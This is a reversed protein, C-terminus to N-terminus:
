GALREVAGLPISLWSPRHQAEYVVEYIMKDTEYATLLAPQERPDFSAAEAYGDCFAERNREMWETSRYAIQEYASDDRRYDAVLLHRAAYDFSRLMGAIDRLPSDLATREALPRVPEGEFDVIKWGVVTRLAQGLHLDGHIRQVPVPPSVTRLADIHERLVTDYQRLEPVVAVADDLRRVMLQALEALDDADLQSTPLVEALTEHVRATTAGLRHAEGAFDGGVEDAHLDGEAFLDRVSATALAWGDTATTLFSQLMALSAEHPGDGDTWRGNVWGLLPAVDASEAETLARHIEVDPNLGPQVRRYTKLLAIDGFALSTNTQEVTLALSSEDFPIEAGPETHFHLDGIRQSGAFYRLLTSTSDRDHLADYLHGDDDLRGVYVHDLREVIDPHVSLPVQYVTRRDGQRVEALLHWLLPSTTTLATASVIRVDDVPVDKGAFWRQRPLWGALLEALEERRDDVTV